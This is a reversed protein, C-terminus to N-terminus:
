MECWAFNWIVDFRVLSNLQFPSRIGYCQLWMILWGNEERQKIAENRRREWTRNTLDEFGRMRIVLHSISNSANESDCVGKRQRRQLRRWTKGKWIFNLYDAGYFTWVPGVWVQPRMPHGVSCWIPVMTSDPAIGHYKIRKMVSNKLIIINGKKEELM